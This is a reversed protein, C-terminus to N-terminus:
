CRSDRIIHAFLHVLPCSTISPVSLKCNQRILTQCNDARPGRWAEQHWRHWIFWPLVGSDLASNNGFDVGDQLFLIFAHCTYNLDKSLLNIHALHLNGIYTSIQCQFAWIYRPLPSKVNWLGSLLRDKTNERGAHVIYTYGKWIEHYM